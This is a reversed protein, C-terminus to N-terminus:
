EYSVMIKVPVIYGGNYKTVYNFNNITTTLKIAACGNSTYGSTATVNFNVNNLSYKMMDRYNTFYNYRTNRVGSYVQFYEYTNSYYNMYDFVYNGSTSIKSFPAVDVKLIKKNSPINNLRVMQTMVGRSSADVFTTMYYTNSYSVNVPISISKGGLRITVNATGESLATVNGKSDVKLINSNSSSFSPTGSINTEYANKINYSGGVVMKVSSYLRELHKKDQVTVSMKAKLGGSAVTITAIGAKKATLNGWSDVSVVSTDDSEWSLNSLNTVPSVMRKDDQIMTISKTNFSLYGNNLVTVYISNSYGNSSATIIATGVSKGTINGKQDVSVVSTNSSRWYLNNLNTNVNLKTTGNVNLNISSANFTIYPTESVNIKITDSYGSARVTITATGIKKATIKGTTSVSVVSSNSSSYSLGSLNTIPNLYDIDGVGLNISSTDFYLYGNDKVTVYMSASKGDISATIYASGAKKATIYGYRNVSVVSSNSSSWSISGSINTKYSAYRSEGIGMSIHSSSLELYNESNSVTVNAYARKGGATVTITAAGAKKATLKGSTSVSVVNSNSSSYTVNYNANSPYVYAYLSYTEGVNLYVSNTNLSISSVSVSTNDNPKNNGYLSSRLDIFVKRNNYTDLYYAYVCRTNFAQKESVKFIMQFGVYGLGEKNMVPEIIPSEVYLNAGTKKKLEQVESVLKTYEKAQKLSASNAHEAYYLVDKTVACNSVKYALPYISNANLSGYKCINNNPKNNVIPKTITTNTNPKNNTNTNPKSSTNTNPKSNTSNNNNTTNNNGENGNNSTNDDVNNNQNDNNNNNQDDDKNDDKSNDVKEEYKVTNIIYDSAEGCVLKVKITYDTSNIKTAEAYSETLNCANGDQDTFEIIAKKDLMEGLTIKEKGNLTQPLRSGTFYEMASDKMVKLNVSLNSEKVTKNDHGKVLSIIWLIIFVVVLLIVLKILLSKWEIKLGKRKDEYM